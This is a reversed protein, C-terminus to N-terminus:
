TELCIQIVLQSNPYNWAFTRVSLLGPYSIVHGHQRVFDLTLDAPPRPWAVKVVGFFWSPNQDPGPLDYLNTPKFIYALLKYSGYLLLGFPILLLSFM